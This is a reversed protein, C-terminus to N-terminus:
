ALVDPDPIRDLDRHELHSGALDLQADLSWRLDLHVTLLDIGPDLLLVTARLPLRLVTFAVRVFLLPAGPTRSDTGAADAELSGPEAGRTGISESTWATSCSDTRHGRTRVARSRM